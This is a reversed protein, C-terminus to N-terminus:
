VAETVPVTEPADLEPFDLLVETWLNLSAVFGPKRAICTKLYAIQKEYFEIAREKTLRPDAEFTGAQLGQYEEEIAALMETDFMPRQQQGEANMLPVKTELVKFGMGSIIDKPDFVIVPETQNEYQVRIPFQGKEIDCM